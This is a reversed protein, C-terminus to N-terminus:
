LRTLQELFEQRRRRSVPVIAGDTMVITGDKDYREIKDLNILHSKHPAYFNYNELLKRFEGLNYSSLLAKGAEMVIKTCGELGECHIIQGAEVFELGRESPIGIRNSTSRPNNLNRLLERTREYSIRQGIRQQAVGVAKVLEVVSIPKVIYALACCKIAELAYTDFSTVFIIEPHDNPPLQRVLDFGTARPMVIDLFIVDPQHLSIMELGAEADNATALIKVEPCHEALLNQLVAIAHPEDDILVANM